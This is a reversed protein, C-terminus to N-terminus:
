ASNMQAVEASLNLTLLHLDPALQVPDVVSGSGHLVVPVDVLCSHTPPQPTLLSPTLVHSHSLTRVSRAGYSWCEKKGLRTFLITNPHAVVNAWVIVGSGITGGTSVVVVYFACWLGGAHTLNSVKSSFM